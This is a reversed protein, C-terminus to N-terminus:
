QIYEAIRLIASRSKPNDIIEKTTPFIRDVIKINKQYLLKINKESIPIGNPIHPICSNQVMFQKIIRDELSHFSIVVIRANKNLFKLIKQLFIKIAYLEQNIFIRIAQFSKTAPHQRKKKKFIVSQIIKSLELTTTIPQNKKKKEIIAAIKNAFKEEGFTKLVYAIEKKTSSNIWTTASIGETPNMRMDLPGDLKFSFGRDKFMLQMSSVGLDLIIGDIKKNINYKKVFIDIDSFNGHIIQLRHDLIKKAINIAYPDRDIAYLKGDKNLNKLIKLSHGGAGFTCDIYIGNKKIKLAQISEELMVTKHLLTNM